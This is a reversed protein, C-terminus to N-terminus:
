AAISDANKAPIEWRGTARGIRSLLEDCVSAWTHDRRTRQYAAEALTSLGTPDALLASVKDRAEPLADYTVIERGPTYLDALGRRSWALPAVGSAAIEMPKIHIGVEDQWRMVSLGLRAQDYIAAQKDYDVFGESKVGCGWASFDASGFMGCNFHRALYVFTFARAFHEISRIAQTVQVYLAHRNTFAQVAGRLDDDRRIRELREVMPMDRREIQMTMLQAMVERVAPRSAADFSQALADLKPNVQRALERRVADMDPEDRKVEDLMLPTPTQWRDGGGASFMIDFRKNTAGPQPAFVEPNIGYRSPLVTDRNFGFLETMEVATGTNNIFHFLWPSQMVGVGFLTVVSGDNAREPSDLWVMLHPHEIADFLTVLKNNHNVLGLTTLANAWMGVTLDIKNNQIFTALMRSIDGQVATRQPAARQTLSWLPELEFILVDHGLTRCGAILDLFISRSNTGPQLLFLLRM